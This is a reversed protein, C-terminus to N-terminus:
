PRVEYIIIVPKEVIQGDDLTTFVMESHVVRGNYRETYGILKESFFTSRAASYADWVIYQFEGTRIEFDPNRIPTYSPNRHLPNPSVSLGYAQREGYFQLINAMSPGITMLTSGIPSNQKLWLGAERGGPVGGSGALFTGTSVPRIRGWSPIFLSLLVIILVVAQLWKKRRSEGRTRYRLTFTWSGPTRAALIAIPPTILLLYHFGKVPWIQFFLVPVAIWSLLLTEKWSRKGRFVVLGHLALLLLLPGLVSTLTFPYFTWEHNPRRLLQWVLYQRSTEGGGGGALALTLPFPLIILLLVGLSAALDRIRIQITPALAFFVFVAIVLVVGTEKALITLGMSAGVAYLWSRSLSSAYRSLLYITLTSFFTMSVDLLVQRSVVVHYPMLALFLAGLLGTRDNYLHRGLLYVCLVTLIAFLVSVGRGAIDNVSITFVVSLLFQHLLPHARFIPFFQSLQEDRAIAAAQGSYVAEDSNFGFGDLNYVRLLGSIILIFLLFLHGRNFSQAIRHRRFREGSRRLADSIRDLKMLWAYPISLHSGSGPHLLM